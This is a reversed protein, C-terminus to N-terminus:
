VLGKHLLLHSTVLRKTLVPDKQLLDHSLYKVKQLVLHPPKMVKM